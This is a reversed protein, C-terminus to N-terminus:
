LYGKVSGIALLTIITTGTEVPCSHERAYFVFAAVICFLPEFVVRRGHVISDATRGFLETRDAKGIRSGTTGKQLDSDSYQLLHFPLVVSELQMPNQIRAAPCEANSLVRSDEPVEYTMVAPICVFVDLFYSNGSLVGENYPM